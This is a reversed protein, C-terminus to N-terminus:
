VRATFKPDTRTSGTQQNGPPKEGTQRAWEARAREIYSIRRM